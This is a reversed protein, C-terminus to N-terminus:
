IRFDGGCVTVTNPSSSKPHFLVLHCLMKSSGMTLCHIMEMPQAILWSFLFATELGVAIIQRTRIAVICSIQIVGMRNKASGRGVRTM